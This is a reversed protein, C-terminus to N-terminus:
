LLEGKYILSVDAKLIYKDNNVECYSIGGDAIIECKNSAKDLMNSLYFSCIAGSGCSSTIGVGYEYTKIRIKNKSIVKIVHINCQHEKSFYIDNTSFVYNEIDNVFKIYHNNYLNVFYGDDYKMMMPSSTAIAYYDNEKYGIVKNGSVEFIFSDENSLYNLLKVLCRLGNGCMKAKSGDNNYISVNFNSDINLLGDAGIGIKYDCLKAIKFKNIDKNITVIFNNGNSELKYFEM